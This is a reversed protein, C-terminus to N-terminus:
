FITLWKKEELKNVTESIIKQKESNDISELVSKASKSSNFYNNGINNFMEENNNVLEAIIKNIQEKKENDIQEVNQYNIATPLSMTNIIEMFLELKM